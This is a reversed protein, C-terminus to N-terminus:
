AAVEFLKLFDPDIVGDKAWQEMQKFKTENISRVNRFRTNSCHSCMGTKHIEAKLLLEQCADCMLVPDMFPGDKSYKQEPTM